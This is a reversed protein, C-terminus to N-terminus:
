SLPSVKAALGAAPLPDVDPRTRLQLELVEGDADWM